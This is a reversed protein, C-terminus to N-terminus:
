RDSFDNPKKYACIIAYIVINNDKNIAFHIHYPFQKLLITRLNKYKITFHLPNKVISNKAQRVRQLFQKALDPNIKKYYETAEILDLKVSPIYIINM